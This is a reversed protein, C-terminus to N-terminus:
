RDPVSLHHPGYAVPGATFGTATGPSSSSGTRWGSSPTSTATYSFEDPGLPPVTAIVEKTWPGQPHPLDVTRHRASSPTPRATIRYRGGTRDVSGGADARHHHAGGRGPRQGLGGRGLLAVPLPGPSTSRTGSTRLTTAPATSTRDRWMAGYAPEATSPTEEMRVLTLQPLRLVAVDVDTPLFDFAGGEVSPNPAVELAYVRVLDREVAADTPWYYHDGRNPIWESRDPGVLPRFCSGTQVYGLNHLM